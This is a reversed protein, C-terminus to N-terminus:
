PIKVNLSLLSGLPEALYPVRKKRRNGGPPTLSAAFAAALGVSM